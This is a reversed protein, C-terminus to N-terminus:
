LPGARGGGLGSRALALGQRARSQLLGRLPADAAILVIAACAGAPLATAILSPIPPLSASLRATETAVLWGIGGSLMGSAMVRLIELPSVRAGWWLLALGIPTQLLVFGGLYVSGIALLQQEPSADRALMGAVAYAATTLIAVGWSIAAQVGPRGVALMVSRQFFGTPLLAAAACLLTLTPTAPAWEDGVLRMLSPGSGALLGLAPLTLWSAARMSLLVSRRLGAPDAQLASFHALSVAQLPRTTVDTVLTTLRAAFRYLGVALPGFFLGMVLVDARKGAFIGLTDLFTASSFALLERVHRASFRRRPRWESVSWLLILSAFAEGVKQGVLAWIGFGGFAMAIGVVGGPVVALNARLALSKFDMTRQLIAQQVITLCQVPILLSLANIAPALTPIGCLESWWGSLAISLATLLTGVALVTWFVSDLHEERLDERQILAVTLGQDLLMELFAIYVMAIAVLGFPEPGLMAALVLTILAASVKKGWNMAFAWLVASRFSTRTANGARPPTLEM